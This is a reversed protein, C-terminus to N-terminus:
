LQDLIAGDYKEGLERLAQDGDTRVASIINGVAQQFDGVPIPPRCLAEERHKESINSWIIIDPVAIDMM